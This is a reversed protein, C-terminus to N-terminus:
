RRLHPCTEQGAAPRDACVIGRPNFAPALLAHRLPALFVALARPALWVPYPPEPPPSDLIPAALFEEAETALASLMSEDPTAVAAQHLGL